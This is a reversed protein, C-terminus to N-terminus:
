ITEVEEISYSYELSYEFRERIDFEKSMRASLEQNHAVLAHVWDHADKEYQELQLMSRKTPGLIGHMPRVPRPHADQYRKVEAQYKIKVDAIRDMEAERKAKVEALREFNESALIAQDYSSEYGGYSEILIYIM